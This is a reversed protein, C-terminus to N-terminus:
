SIACETAVVQKQFGTFGFKGNNDDLLWREIDSCAHHKGATTTTWFGGSSTQGLMTNALADFHSTRAASQMACTSDTRSLDNCENGGFQASAEQDHGPPERETPRLPGTGEGVRALAETERRAQMDTQATLPRANACMAQSNGLPTPYACSTSKFHTAM